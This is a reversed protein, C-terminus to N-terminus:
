MRPIAGPLDEAESEGLSVILERPVAVLHAKLAQARELAASIERVHIREAGAVAGSQVPLSGQEAIGAARAIGRAAYLLSALSALGPTGEAAACALTADDVGLRHCREYAASLDDLLVARALQANPLALFLNQTSVAGLAAQLCARIGAVAANDPYIIARRSDGSTTISDGEGM